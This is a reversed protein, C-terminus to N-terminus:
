LLLRFWGVLLVKVELVVKGMLVVLQEGFILFVV